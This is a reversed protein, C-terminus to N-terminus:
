NWGVGPTSTEGVATEFLAVDQVERRAGEFRGTPDNTHAVTIPGM